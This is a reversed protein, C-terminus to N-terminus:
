PNDAYYKNVDHYGTIFPPIEIWHTPEAVMGNEFWYYGGGGTVYRYEGIYAKGNVWFLIRKREPPSIKKIENWALMVM